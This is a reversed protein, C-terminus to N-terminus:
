YAGPGSVILISKHVAEPALSLRIAAAQEVTMPRTGGLKGKLLEQAMQTGLQRLESVVNKTKDAGRQAGKAKVQEIGYKACDNLWKISTRFASRRSPVTTEDSNYTLYDQCNSLHEYVVSAHVSEQEPELNQESKPDQEPKPDKWDWFDLFDTIYQALVPM